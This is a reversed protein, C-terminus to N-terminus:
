ALKGNGELKPLIREYISFQGASLYDVLSQCFGDLAKEDQRMYSDKGPKIAVMNDYGLLRARTCM